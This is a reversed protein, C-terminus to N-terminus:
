RLGERRVRGISVAGTLDRVSITVYQQRDDLLEVSSPDASGDAYFLLPASWITTHSSFGAPLGASLEPAIPGAAAAVPQGPATEVPRFLVGEPLQGSETNAVPAPRAGTETSSSESSLADSEYPIVAYKRGGPEYLFQWTLSSDIAQLRARSLKVRVDEAAQQLRYTGYAREIAPWAIAALAALLGVVLLLEFLTYGGRCRM